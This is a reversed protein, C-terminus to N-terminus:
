RGDKGLQERIKQELARNKSQPARSQEFDSSRRSSSKSKRGSLEKLRDASIKGAKGDKKVENQVTRAKKAVDKEQKKEKETEKSEKKLSKEISDSNGTISLLRSMFSPNRKKTEKTKSTEKENDKNKSTKLNNEKAIQKATKGISENSDQAKEEGQRSLTKGTAKKMAKNINDKTLNGNRIRLENSKRVAKEQGEKKKQQREQEKGDKGKNNGSITRNINNDAVIDKFADRNRQRNMLVGENVRNLSDTRARQKWDTIDAMDIEIRKRTKEVM